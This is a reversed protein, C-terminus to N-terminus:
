RLTPISIQMSTALLPGSARCPLCHMSQWRHLIFLTFTGDRRHLTCPLNPLLCADPLLRVSPSGYSVIRNFATFLIAFTGLWRLLLLTDFISLYLVGSAAVAALVFAPRGRCPGKVDFEAHIM